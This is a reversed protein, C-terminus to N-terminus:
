RSQRAFAVADATDENILDANIGAGARSGAAAAGIVQLSADTLNGAAWVRAASTAGLTDVKVFTTLVTGAVEQETVSIGLMDLLETRVRMLPSVVVVHRAIQEGSRLRVGTLRDDHVDLNAVEGAIIRIGRADLQERQEPSLPPASHQFLVVDDSWQRFLLAVHVAMPGTGLIGIAQDRVEWGHCYPCHIVDRGWREAVGPLDPLVDVLGTALLLRRALVTSGNNLTVRFTHREHERREIAVVRNAAFQGGYGSVEARGLTLLESPPMGDRSLFNQMHEAPANRPQGDDIVLVSRRARVLSLAGSLGAAGGGIVIVDYSAGDTPTDSREQQNHQQNTTANASNM